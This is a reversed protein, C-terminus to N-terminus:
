NRLKKWVRGVVVVKVDVVVGFDVVVHFGCVVAVLIELNEGDGLARDKGVVLFGFVVGGLTRRGLM